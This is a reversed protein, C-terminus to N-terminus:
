SGKFQAKRKEVFASAGERADDTVLCQGFLDYEMEYGEDGAHVCRLIYDIAIPAKEAIKMLLARSTAVEAGAECVHNVLGLRLAEDAN